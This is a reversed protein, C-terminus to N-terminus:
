RGCSGCRWGQSQRKAATVKPALRVEHRGIVDLYSDLYASSVDNLKLGDLGYVFEQARRVHWEANHGLVRYKVLKEAYKGWFAQEKDTMKRKMTEKEM